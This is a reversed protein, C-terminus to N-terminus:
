STEERRPHLGCEKHEPEEWWWRGAREDEDPKIARTCSACGISAYGADHLTNTPVSYRRIYAWIEPGSWDALPNFKALGNDADWEEFRLDRRIPSQGRRQGTIWACKGALARKLPKVKRIYCCERRRLVSEYFANPGHMGAFTEVDATAPAFVTLPVRYRQRTQQMLRYTEEPLRGTDLTFIGITLGHRDILDTLLMDEVGFSSALAAPAHERAITRLRELVGLEKNHPDIANM